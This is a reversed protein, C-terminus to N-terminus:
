DPIYKTEEHIERKIKIALDAAKLKANFQRSYHKNTARKIFRKHRRNLPLEKKEEEPKTPITKNQM